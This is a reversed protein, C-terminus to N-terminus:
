LPVIANPSTLAGTFIYEAVSDLSSRNWKEVSVVQRRDVVVGDTFVCALV